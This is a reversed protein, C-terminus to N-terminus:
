SYGRRSMGTHEETGKESHLQVSVSHLGFQEGRTGVTRLLPDGMTGVLAEHRSRLVFVLKSEGNDGEVITRMMRKLM